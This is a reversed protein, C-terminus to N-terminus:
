MLGKVPRTTPRIAFFPMVIDSIRAFGIAIPLFATQLLPDIESLQKLVRSIKSLIERSDHNRGDQGILLEGPDSRGVVARDILM